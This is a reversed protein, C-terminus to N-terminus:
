VGNAWRMFMDRRGAETDHAHENITEWVLGATAVFAPAWVAHAATERANTPTRWPKRLM